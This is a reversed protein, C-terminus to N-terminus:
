ASRGTRRPEPGRSLLLRVETGEGPASRVVATGGHRQVRDVVSRRLGHRDPPVAAPDFGCGRDRVFVEVSAWGSPGPVVEAYVDVRPAGSHRAANAVAERAAAVLAQLDAEDPDSAGTAADDGLTDGVTVVEVPTGHTDEVEAAVARLAAALSTPGASGEAVTGGYLWERLDREQARALQTVTGPDAASRQILALTQLVSDHLHAAVDAREQTRVREARERALDRALRLLWPGLTLALGLVGFAAALVADRAVGWQGSRAAFIVFATALLGFGTAVRAYAATRSGSGLLVSRLDARGTADSWRERQAEDAQRWLVAVGVLALAAPWVVAPRDLLFGVLGAVGLAVTGGAVLVGTDRATSGARHGRKGQRTAAELGPATPAAVTQLPLVFWLGAYFLVGFGTVSTLVFAARVGSVPVQLHAALGSAVGGLYGDQPLRVARRVGDGAPTGAGM